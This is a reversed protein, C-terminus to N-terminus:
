VHVNQDLDRSRPQYQRKVNELDMRRVGDRWVQQTQSYDPHFLDDMKSLEYNFLKPQQGATSSSESDADVNALTRM